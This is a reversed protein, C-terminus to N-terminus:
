SEIGCNPCWYECYSGGDYILYCYGCSPTFVWDDCAYATAASSGLAAVTLALSLILRKVRM